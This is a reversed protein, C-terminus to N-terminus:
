GFEGNGNGFDDAGDLRLVGHIGGTLNAAFRNGFPLFKRVGHARAAAERRGFLEALNNHAFAGTTSDNADFIHGADFKTRLTVADEAAEVSFGAGDNGSVM